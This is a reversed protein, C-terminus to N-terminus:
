EACVRNRGLSKAKYLREDAIKVLDEEVATDKPYASVGISVTISHRERRVTIPHDEIKKRISEAKKQAKRIDAGSLFIAIEEGGYRSAMDGEHLESAITGAIYKLVIDGTAHGYKDNYWKFRDIDLMLLAISGDKKRAARKAEEHLRKLFFRRVSLGTLSDHIALDQVWSYLFANQIAVSGLGGLIDLLRLDDQTYFNETPSDMRLIGIVKNGSLLPVAILSKFYEKAEEAEKSPFRFDQMSDEIILPTGHKLVWKDFIDGAKAKVKLPGQSASLMLEQKQVDVLFLMIRGSKKITVTSKEIILRAIEEITLTTTLSEAVDKLMSYRLLKEELHKTDIRKKNLEDSLINIGEEVKESDLGAFYKISKTAKWNRYGILATLIFSWSLFAASYYGSKLVGTLAIFLSIITIAIGTFIGFGIWLLIIPINFCLVAVSIVSSDPSLIPDIKPHISFLLHSLALFVILSTIGLISRTSPNSM